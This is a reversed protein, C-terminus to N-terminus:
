ASAWAQAEAVSLGYVEFWVAPHIMVHYGSVYDALKEHPIKGHWVVPLSHYKRKLHNIYRTEYKSGPAGIIHLQYRDAPLAAFAALMVHIGKEPCLRGVYYFKVVGGEVAPFDLRKALPIGHQLIKVNTFNGQRCILDAVAESPAIMADATRFIALRKVMEGLLHTEQFLPTLFYVFPLHLFLREACLRAKRPLIQLLLRWVFSFRLNGGCCKLCKEPALVGDCFSGDSRQLLGTICFIEPCHCTYVCPIDLKRCVSIVNTAFGHHCHVIDPSIEQIVRQVVVELDPIYTEAVGSHWTQPLLLERVYIEPLEPDNQSLERLSPENSPILSLFYVDEGMQSQAACIQRLYIELGGHSSDFARSTVHLIKM